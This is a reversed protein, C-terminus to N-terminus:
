RRWSEEPLDQVTKVNHAVVAEALAKLLARQEALADAEKRYRAEMWEAGQRDLNRFPESLFLARREEQTTAAQDAVWLEEMAAEDINSDSTM